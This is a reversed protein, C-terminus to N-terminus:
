LRTAAELAILLIKERLTDPMKGLIREDWENGGICDASYLFQYVPVKRFQGVAMLSACEMEVVGCGEKKRLELNRRTERYFADTTWTKTKSVPIHLEGFVKELFDASEIEIYDSPPAYHYSVGEDRYAATPIFIRGSGDAEDLTGCSGWFLIKKAGLAIVEELLAAAGAGGIVTNYFGMSQNNYNIRYVSISSGGAKLETIQEADYKALLLKSFKASFSSIVTQPFDAVHKVNNQAKIIEEGHLDFSDVISM